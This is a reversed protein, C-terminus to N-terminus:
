EHKNDESNRLIEVFFSLMTKRDEFLRQRETLRRIEAECNRIEKLIEEGIKKM